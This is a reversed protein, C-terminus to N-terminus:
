WTRGEREESGASERERERERGREREREGQREGQREREERGSERERERGGERMLVQIADEHKTAAIELDEVQVRFTHCVESQEEALRQNERRLNTVHSEAKDREACDLSEREREGERERDGERERV